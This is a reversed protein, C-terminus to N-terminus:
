ILIKINFRNTIWWCSQISMYLWHLKQVTNLCIFIDFCCFRLQTNDRHSQRCPWLSSDTLSIILLHFVILHIKKEEKWIYEKANSSILLSHTQTVREEEGHGGSVNNEQEKEETLYGLYGGGTSREGHFLKFQTSRITSLSKRRVVGPCYPPIKDM